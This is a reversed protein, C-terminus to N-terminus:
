KIHIDAFYRSFLGSENFAQKGNRLPQKVKHANNRDDRYENPQHVLLLGVIM